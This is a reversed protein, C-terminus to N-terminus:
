GSVPEANTIRRREDAGSGPVHRHITLGSNGDASAAVDPNGGVTDQLGVTNAVELRAIEALLERQGHHPKSAILAKLELVLREYDVLM